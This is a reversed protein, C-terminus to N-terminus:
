FLENGLCVSLRQCVTSCTLDIGEYDDGHEEEQFITSGLSRLLKSIGKIKPADTLTFVFLFYFLNTIM